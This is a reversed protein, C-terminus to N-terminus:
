AAPRCEDLFTPFPPRAPIPTLSEPIAVLGDCKAHREPSVLSRQRNYIGKCKGRPRPSEADAVATVETSHHKRTMLRLNLHPDRLLELPFMPRPNAIVTLGLLLTIHHGRSAQANRQLRSVGLARGELILPGLPEFRHETRYEDRHISEDDFTPHPLSLALFGLAPRCLSLSLAGYLSFQLFLLRALRRLLAIATLLQRLFNLMPIRSAANPFVDGMDAGGVRVVGARVAPGLPRQGDGVVKIGRCRPSALHSLFLQNARGGVAREGFDTGGAALERRAAAHVQGTM